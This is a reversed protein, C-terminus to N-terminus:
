VKINIILFIFYIYTGDFIEFQITKLDLNKFKILKKFYIILQQFIITKFIEIKLFSESFKSKLFFNSIEVFKNHNTIRLIWQSAELWKCM